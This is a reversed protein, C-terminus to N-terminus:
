LWTQMVVCLFIIIFFCSLASLKHVKVFISPIDSRISCGWCHIVPPLILWTHTSTQAHTSCSFASSHGTDCRYGSSGSTQLSPLGKLGGLSPVFPITPQGQLSHILNSRHTNNYVRGCGIVGMFEPQLVQGKKQIFYLSPYFFLIFFFLFYFM